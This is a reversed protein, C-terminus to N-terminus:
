GRIYIDGFGSAIFEPSNIIAFMEDRCVWKDMELDMSEGISYNCLIGPNLAALYDMCAIAKDTQEPTTYEYSLYPVSSHLGKLVELEYGEVDIKIFKPMGYKEILKDLTTMRIKQVTNWKHDKFRDKKVSEIWETSFSSITSADAIYFEKIEEKEGLGNCVLTIRNGFKKKLIAQCSEQPEVAIVKAKLELIPTIRNGANAGVDFCVDGPNIFQAYFAKRLEVETKDDEPVVIEEKRVNNGRIKNILEQGVISKFIQKISM